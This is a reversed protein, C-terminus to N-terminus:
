PLVGKKKLVRVRWKVSHLTREMKKAIDKDKTGNLKLKVLIRVDKESWDGKHTAESKNEVIPIFCMKDAEIDVAKTPPLIPKPLKSPDRKIRCTM